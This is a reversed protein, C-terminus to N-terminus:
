GANEQLLIFFGKAFNMIICFTKLYQLVSQAVTQEAKRNEENFDEIMNEPYLVGVWYKANGGSINSM